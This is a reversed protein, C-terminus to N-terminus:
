GLLVKARFKDDWAARQRKGAISDKLPNAKLMNALIRKFLAM